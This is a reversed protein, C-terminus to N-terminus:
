MKQAEILYTPFIRTEEPIVYIWGEIDKNQFKVKQRVALTHYSSKVDKHNYFQLPNNEIYYHTKGLSVQSLVLSPNNTQTSFYQALAADSALYYGTGFKTKETDKEQNLVIRNNEHSFNWSWLLKYNLFRLKAGALVHGSRDGHFKIISKIQHPLTLNFAQKVKKFEIVKERSQNLTLTESPTDVSRDEEPPWNKNSELTGEIVLELQKGSFSVRENSVDVKLKTGTFYSLISSNVGESIEIIPIKVQKRKCNDLSHNIKCNNYSSIPKWTGNERYYWIPTRHVFQLEIKKSQPLIMAAEVKPLVNDTPPKIFNLKL